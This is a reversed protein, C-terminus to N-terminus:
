PRPPAPAKEPEPLTGPVGRYSESFSGDADVSILRYGFASGDFNKCPSPTTLFSLSRWRSSRNRHLHGTLIARVRRRELLALVRARWPSPTNEYVDREDVSEVYLPHHQLVFIPRNGASRLQSELWALQERATTELTWLQSNLGIFVCGGETRAFRDPAVDRQFADALDPVLKRGDATLDHNGPVVWVPVTFRAKVEQFRRLQEHDGATNLLDGAVLVFRPRTAEPLASIAAAVSAFNQTDRELEVMGLQPDAVVAFRFRDAGFCLSACALLLAASIAVPSRTKAPRRPAPRMTLQPRVIGHLPGEAGALVNKLV